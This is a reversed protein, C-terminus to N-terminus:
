LSSALRFRRLQVCSRRLVQASHYAQLALTSVPRGVWRDRSWRNGHHFADQHDSADEVHPATDTVEMVDKLSLMTYRYTTWWLRRTLRSLSMTSKMDGCM